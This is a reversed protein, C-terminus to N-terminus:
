LKGNSRSSYCLSLSSFRLSFHYILNEMADEEKEEDEMGM